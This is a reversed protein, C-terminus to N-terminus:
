EELVQGNIQRSTGRFFALDEGHQNKIVVDYIGNRGKRSLETATATLCDGPNGPAIYQIQAGVGVNNQNFSNCAYAFATDALTFSFGGHCIQHGNLMDERVRMSLQARGPAVKLIEIGLGQATVDRQYLNSVCAEALQQAAAESQPEDFVDTM